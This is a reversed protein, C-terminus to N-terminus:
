RAADKFEAMEVDTAAVASCWRFPVPIPMEYQPVRVAFPCTGIQREGCQEILGADLLNRRVKPHM